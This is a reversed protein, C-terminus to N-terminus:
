NRTLSTNQATDKVPVSRLRLIAKAAVCARLRRVWAKSMEEVMGRSGAWTRHYVGTLVARLAVGAENNVAACWAGRRDEQQRPRAHGHWESWPSANKQPVCWTARLISTFVESKFGILSHHMYEHWSDTMHRPTCHSFVQQKTTKKKVPLCKDDFPARCMIIKMGIQLGEDMRRSKPFSHQNPHSPPACQGHSQPAQSGGM